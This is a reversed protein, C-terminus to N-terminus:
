RCVGGLRISPIALCNGFWSICNDGATIILRRFYKRNPFSLAYLKRRDETTNWTIMIKTSKEEADKVAEEGRQTAPGWEKRKIRELSEIKFIKKTVLNSGCATSWSSSSSWHFYHFKNAQTVLSKKKKRSRGSRGHKKRKKRFESYKKRQSTFPSFMDVVDEAANRHIENISTTSVIELNPMQCLTLRVSRGVPTKLRRFNTYVYIIKHTTM